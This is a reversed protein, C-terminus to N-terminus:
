ILGKLKMISHLLKCQKETYQKGDIYWDKYGNSYESAPGDLRHRKGDIWWIKTGDPWEVAPGDLRHRKGDIWWEKTGHLWVRAPGDLRHINGDFWWEKASDIYEAIGTFKPPLISTEKIFQNDLTYLKM